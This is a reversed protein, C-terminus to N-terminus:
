TIRTSRKVWPWIGRVRFSFTRIQQGSNRGAAEPGPIAPGDPTAYTSGVVLDGICLDVREPAADAPVSIWGTVLRKSFEEVMGDVPGDGAGQAGTGLAALLKRGDDLASRLMSGVQLDMTM